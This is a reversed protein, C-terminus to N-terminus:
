ADADGNRLRERLEATEVLASMSEDIRKRQHILAEHLAKASNIVLDARRERQALRYRHVTYGLCALNISLWAYTSDMQWSGQSSILQGGLILVDFVILRAWITIPALRHRGRWLSAVIVLAVALLVAQATESLTM